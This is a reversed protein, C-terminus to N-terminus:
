LLPSLVESQDIGDSTQFTDTTGYTTIIKVERKDFLSLILNITIIPIKIRELALKLAKLSVSDFAKKMDQFIIWMERQNEKADEILNNLVYVPTETSDGPLGAYNPGRLINEKQMIQSIRKALIKTTCKRFTEILAIPRINNLDFNWDNNKPILYIQVLKWKFPIEGLLLM